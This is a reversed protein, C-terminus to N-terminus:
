LDDETIQDVSDKKQIKNRKNSVEITHFHTCNKCMPKSNKRKGHFYDCLNEEQVDIRREDCYGKVNKRRPM